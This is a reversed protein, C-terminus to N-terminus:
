IREAKIRKGGVVKVLNGSSDLDLEVEMSVVKQGKHLDLVHKAVEDPNGTFWECQLCEYVKAKQHALLHLSYSKQKECTYECALDHCMYFRSNQRLKRAICDRYVFEENFHKEKLHKKVKLRTNFIISTDCYLCEYKEGTEKDPAPEEAKKASERKDAVSSATPTLIQDHIMKAHKILEQEDPCTTTCSDNSCIYVTSPIKRGEKEVDCAKMMMRKHKYNIHSKMLNVGFSYGKCYLCQYLPPMKGEVVRVNVEAKLAAHRTPRGRPKKETAKKCEAFEAIAKDLDKKSVLGSYTIYTDDQSESESSSVAPSSERGPSASSTVSPSRVSPSAVAPAVVSSTSPIPSPASASAQEKRENVKDAHKESLHLELESGERSEWLCYRCFYVTPKTKNKAAQFDKFISNRDDHSSIVHKKVRTNNNSVYQCYFCGYEAGSVAIVEVSESSKNKGIKTTFQRTLDLSKILLKDVDKTELGQLWPSCEDTHDIFEDMDKSNFKCNNKLCFFVYRQQRLKVAKMDLAYIVSGAHRVLLHSKVKEVQPSSFNCHACKFSIPIKAEAEKEKALREATKASDEEANDIEIQSGSPNQSPPLITKSATPAPLTTRNAPSQAPLSPTVTRLATHSQPMDGGPNLVLQADSAKLRNMEEESSVLMAVYKHAKGHHVANLHIKLFAQSLTVFGCYGCNWCLGSSVTVNKKPIARPSAEPQPEGTVASVAQHGSVVSTIVPQAEPTVQTASVVPAPAIPVTKRATGRKSQRPSTQPGADGAAGPEDTKQKKAAGEEEDAKRKMTKVGSMYDPLYSCYILTAATDKFEDHQEKCHQIVKARSFSQFACFKCHFRHEMVHKLLADKNETRYSCFNCWYCTIDMQLPQGNPPLLLIKSGLACVFEQDLRTDGENVPLEVLAENINTTKESPLSCGKTPDSPQVISAQTDRMEQPKPRPTRALPKLGQVDNEALVAANKQLLDEVVNKITLEKQQDNVIGVLLCFQATGFM